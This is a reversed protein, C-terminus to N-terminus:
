PLLLVVYVLFILFFFLLSLFVVTFVSHFMLTVIIGTVVPARAVTVSPNICLSSSKSIVPRTSVM